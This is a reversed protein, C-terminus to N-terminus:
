GYGILYSRNFKDNMNLFINRPVPTANTVGNVAANSMSKGARPLTISKTILPPTSYKTVRPVVPSVGVM